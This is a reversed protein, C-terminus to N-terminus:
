SIVPGITLGLNTIPALRSSSAYGPSHSRPAVLGCAWFPRGMPGSARPAAGAEIMAEMSGTHASKAGQNAGFDDRGITGAREHRVRLFLIINTDEQMRRFPKTAYADDVNLLAV